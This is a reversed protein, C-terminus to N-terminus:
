VQEGRIATNQLFVRNVMLSEDLEEVQAGRGFDARQAGQQGLPAAKAAERGM